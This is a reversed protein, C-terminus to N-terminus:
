DNRKQASKAWANPKQTIKGPRPKETVVCRYRGKNNLAGGGGGNPYILFIIFNMPKM